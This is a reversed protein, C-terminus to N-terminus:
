TCTSCGAVFLCLAINSRYIVSALYVGSRVESLVARMDLIMVRRHTKAYVTPNIDDKTGIKLVIYMLIRHPKSSIAHVLTPHSQPYVGKTSVHLLHASTESALRWEPVESV